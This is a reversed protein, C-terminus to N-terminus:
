IIIKKKALDRQYKGPINEAQLENVKEEKLKELLRKEAALQNKIKKGEELQIKKDQKAKEERQAMQKRVQEAHGKIMAKREQEARLELDRELKQQQIVRQFEDREQIAQEQLKREKEM